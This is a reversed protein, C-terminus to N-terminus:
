FLTPSSEDMEPDIAPVAKLIDPTNTDVGRKYIDNSVPHYNLDENTFSVNILNKIQKENLTPDIWNETFQEDLILPM